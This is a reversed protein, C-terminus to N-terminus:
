VGVGGWSGRSCQGELAWVYIMEGGLGGRGGDCTEQKFKVNVHGSIGEKMRKVTRIERGRGGRVVRGGRRGRRV